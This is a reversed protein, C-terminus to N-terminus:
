GPAVRTVFGTLVQNFAEPQDHLTVGDSTVFSPMRDGGARADVAPTGPLHGPWLRPHGIVHGLIKM